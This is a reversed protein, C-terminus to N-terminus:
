LTEILLMNTPGPKGLPLGAGLVFTDGKTGLKFSRLAKRAHTLADKTSTIVPAEVPICGFTLLSQYYTKKNPTLVIIPRRPRHRAVLRGTYGSESLAVIACASTSRSVRAIAATISDMANRVPWTRGSCQEDYFVSDEVREAIRRMVEVALAPHDGVATEDSLMVADTGDLIANAVDNVEARTPAEEHKMSDLMQTATIVPKGFQNALTIIRKQALPVDERPIEIALDGRAVMVADAAEIIAELREMAQLTEIKAVININPAHDKLIRRLDAIDQEHRVFSLTIFDVNHRVCFGIDKKDKATITPISLSTGPVNVGRRSRIMGGVEVLTHIDTGNKVELVRLVVRGDNLMIHTDKSVEHPLRSYNVEVIDSSGEVKRTTLTFKAGRVLTVQGEAFDGIRIKPGGLDALIAVPTKLHESQTRIGQILALHSDHDGHSFNLRAVNMGATILAGIAKKDTSSPGLTAVIKTKSTHHSKM